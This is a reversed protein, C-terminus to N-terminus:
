NTNENTAEKAKGLLYTKVSMSCSVDGHDKRCVGNALMEENIDCNACTGNTICNVAEDIIGVLAVSHKLAKIQENLHYTTEDKLKNIEVRMSVIKDNLLEDRTKGM